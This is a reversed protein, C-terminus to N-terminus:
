SDNILSLRLLMEVTSMLKEKLSFGYNNKRWRQTVETILGLIIDAFEENKVEKKLEGNNIGSKIFDSIFKFKANSISNIHESIEPYEKFMDFTFLISTIAPYNEYYEGYSKVFFIIGEKTNLGQEKITNKIMSDFYSFKDIVALIISEKNAFHRYIAAETVEQRNALERITLGQIGLQDVIEIATIIINEKRTLYKKKM